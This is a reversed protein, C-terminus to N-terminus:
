TFKEDSEVLQRFEKVKKHCENLTYVKGRFSPILNTLKNVDGFSFGLVRGVDKIVAKSSMTGFTGIQAVKDEGYKNIVYKIVEERGEGCFDIDIDPM